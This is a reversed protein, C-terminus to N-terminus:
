EIRELKMKFDLIRRDYARSINTNNSVYQKYGNIGMNYSNLAYYFILEESMGKQRYFDCYFAIGSIGMRVNDKFNLINYTELGALESYWDAFNKNIQMIGYDNTVSILSNDFNSELKMMSLIMEYSVNNKISENYIFYQENITLPINSYYINHKLDVETIDKDVMTVGEVRITFIFLIMMLILFLKIKKNM